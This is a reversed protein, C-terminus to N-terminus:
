GHGFEVLEPNESRKGTVGETGVGHRPALGAKVAPALARESGKSGHKQDMETRQEDRVDRFPSSPFPPLRGRDAPKWCRIGAVPLNAVPMGPLESAIM